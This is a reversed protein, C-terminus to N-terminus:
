DCAIESRTPSDPSGACNRLKELRRRLTREHGLESRTATLNDIQYPDRDLDYHETATTRRCPTGPAAATRHQVFLRSRTRIGVYSCPRAHRQTGTPTQDLEVVLARNSPWGPRKGHGELLPLLSRGDLERCRGDDACPKASALALITPAIDITGALEPVRKTAPRLREPLKVFLPMRLNEEYPFEKRKPIRHEGFFFGNDSTFFIATDDLQGNEELADIVKAVGRDVVPLSAVACKFRRNALELSGPTLRDLRRIFWPKDSVDPENRNRGSPKHWSKTTGIDDPDPVAGSACITGDHHPSPHPAYHDIQLYFPADDDSYTDILDVARNNLVRTLYDDPENGFEVLKGNDSVKYDYYDNNLTTFWEDWGAPVDTRSDLAQTFGNLYKGVHLTNYGANQLWRPLILGKNKLKRYNNRLVGNNHGYEGTLLNARSPCCLPSVAVFNEFSTGGRALVRTTVPMSRPTIMSATADDIVIMVVNPADAAAPREPERDGCGILLACVLV